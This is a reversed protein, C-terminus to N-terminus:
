FFLYASFQTRFNGVAKSDSITLDSNFAGYAAVTYELELAFRVPGSHVQARPSIRWVYDIGLDILDNYELFFGRSGDVPIFNDSSVGLNQTYGAFVGFETRVGDSEGRFGTSLETWFSIISTPLVKDKANDIKERALGGIMLHDTMNQGVLGYLKFFGTGFNFRAFASAALSNTAETQNHELIVQKFDVGTGFHHGAATAHIGAFLNPIGSNRLPKNGGPGAFDRQAMAAAILSIDGVRHTLRLQPNRSFAKFPVGTNFNVVEPFSQTNFLPHWFQGAIFQTNEWDLRVFAHRLRFTNINADTVGFFAGEIVGSTRAGFADPGTLGATIRTQISSMNLQRNENVDKGDVLLEPLPFLAFQNERAAVLERGDSFVDTKVFGSVSFSQANVEQSVVFAFAATLCCFIAKRLKLFNM